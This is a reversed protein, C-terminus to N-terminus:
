HPIAAHTSTTETKVLDNDTTVNTGQPANAFTVKVNQNQTTTISNVLADQEKKKSNIPQVPAYKGTKETQEIEQQTLFPAGSIPMEPKYASLKYKKTAQDLAEVGKATNILLPASDKYYKNDLFTALKNSGVDELKKLAYLAIALAGAVGLFTGCTLMLAKTSVNAGDVAITYFGMSATAGDTTLTATTQIATYGGIYTNWLLQAEAVLLTAYRYAIMIKRFVEIALMATKWAIFAGILYGVVTLISTMNRYVFVLIGKLSNMGSGLRDSEIFANAFAGKVRELAVAFTATNKAAMREAIGTMEINKQYEALEKVAGPEFLARAAKAAKPTALHLTTMLFQNGGQETMKDLQSRIKTVALDMNFVGNKYALGSKELTLFTRLIASSSEGGGQTKKDIFEIMAAAQGLNLHAHAAEASISKLAETLELGKVAGATSAGALIDIARASDKIKFGAMVATLSEATPILETKLAESLTVSSKAFATLAEPEKLLDRNKSGIVNFVESIKDASIFSENAVEMISKKFPVLQADTLRFNTQLKTVAEDYEKIADFGFEIAQMGKQAIAAAAFTELLEHQAHNLVSTYKNLARDARQMAADAKNAFSSVSNGMARMPASIGDIAKFISPIVLAM